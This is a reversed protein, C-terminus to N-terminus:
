AEVGKILKALGHFIEFGNTSLKAAKASAKNASSAIRNSFAVTTKGNIITANTGTGTGGCPVNAYPSTGVALFFVALSLFFSKIQERLNMFGRTKLRSM